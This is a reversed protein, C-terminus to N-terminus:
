GRRHRTVIERFFLLSHQEFLACSQAFARLWSPQDRCITGSQWDLDCILTLRVVSPQFSFDTMRGRDEIKGHRWGLRYLFRDGRQNSRICRLSGAHNSPRHAKAEEDQRERGRKDSQRYVDGVALEM